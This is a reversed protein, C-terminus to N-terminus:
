EGVALTLPVATADIIARMLTTHLLRLPSHQGLRPHSGMLLAM